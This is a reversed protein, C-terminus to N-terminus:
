IRYYYNKYQLALLEKQPGKKKKKDAGLSSAHM